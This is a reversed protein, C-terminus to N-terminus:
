IPLLCEDDDNMSAAISEVAKICKGTNFLLAIALLYCFCYVIFATKQSFGSRFFLLIGCFDNNSSKFVYLSFSLSQFYNLQRVSAINQEVFCVTVGIYFIIECLCGLSGRYFKHIEIAIHVKVLSISQKLKNYAKLGFNGRVFNSQVAYM